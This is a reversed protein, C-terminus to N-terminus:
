KNAKVHNRRIEITRVYMDRLEKDQKDTMERPLSKRENRWNEVEKACSAYANDVIENAPIATDIFPIVHNNLCVAIPPGYDNAYSVSSFLSLLIFARKM